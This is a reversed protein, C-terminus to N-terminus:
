IRRRAVPAPLFTKNKPNNSQFKIHNKIKYNTLIIIKKITKQNITTKDAYITFDWRRDSKITLHHIQGTLRRSDMCIILLIM